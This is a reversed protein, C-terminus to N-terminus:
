HLAKVPTKGSLPSSPLIPRSFLMLDMHPAVQHHHLHLHHHACGMVKHDKTSLGEGIDEGLHSDEERIRLVQSHVNAIKKRWQRVKAVSKPSETEESSGWSEQDTEVEAWMKVKESVSFSRHDVGVEPESVDVSEGGAAMYLDPPSIEKSKEFDSGSVRDQSESAPKVTM